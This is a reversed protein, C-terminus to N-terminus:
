STGRPEEAQRKDIRTTGFKVSLVDPSRTVITSGATLARISTAIVLLRGSSTTSYCKSRSIAEPEEEVGLNIPALQLEAPPDNM